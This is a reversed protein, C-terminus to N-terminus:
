PHTLIRQCYHFFKFLCTLSAAKMFDWVLFGDASEMDPKHEKAGRGGKELAYTFGKSPSLNCCIQSM